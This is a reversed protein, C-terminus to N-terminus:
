CNSVSQLNYAPLVARRRYYRPERNRSLNNLLAHVLISFPELTSIPSLILSGFQLHYKVGFSALAFLLFDLKQTNGLVVVLYLGCISGILGLEESALPQHGLGGHLLIHCTVAFIYRLHM